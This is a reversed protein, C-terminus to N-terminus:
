EPSSGSDLSIATVTSRAAIADIEVGCGEKVFNSVEVLTSTPKSEAFLEDRIGSVIKADAIDKVYIQLKVVNDFSMGGEKLIKSIREFVLRTQAEIDGIHIIKGDIDQPLQGTVFLLDSTGCPVLIGQSYAKTPMRLSEPNIKQVSSMFVTYCVSEEGFVGVLALGDTDKVHGLV